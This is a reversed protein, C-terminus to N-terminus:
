NPKEIAPFCQEWTLKGHKGEWHEKLQQVRKANVFPARCIACHTSSVPQRKAKGKAGGGAKGSGSHQESRSYTAIGVGGGRRSVLGWRAGSVACAPATM